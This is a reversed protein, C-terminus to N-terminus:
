LFYGTYNEEVWANMDTRGSEEAAKVADDMVCAGQNKLWDLLHFHENKIATPIMSMYLRDPDPHFTYGLSKLWKMYALDGLTTAQLLVSAECQKSEVLYRLLPEHEAMEALRATETDCRHGERLLQLALDFDENQAAQLVLTPEM